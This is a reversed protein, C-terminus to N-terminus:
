APAPTGGAPAPAPAPASGAAYGAKAADGVGGTFGKDRSATAKKGTDVEKQTLAQKLKALTLNKVDQGALRSHPSAEIHQTFLQELQGIHDLLQKKRKGAAAEAEGTQYMDKVNGAVQKAGAAVAKGAGRVADGAGAAVEKAKAAAAKGAGAAAQGARKAAGGVAKGINKLGGVFEEVVELEAPTANEIVLQLQQVSMNPLYQKLQTARYAHELLLTDTRHQQM